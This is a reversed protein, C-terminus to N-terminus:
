QVSLYGVYESSGLYGVHGSDSLYLDQRQGHVNKLKMKGTRSTLVQQPVSIVAKCLQCVSMYVHVCAYMCVYMRVYM